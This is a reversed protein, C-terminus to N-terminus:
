NKWKKVMLVSNSGGFAFSNSMATNIKQNRACNPVYDLDCDPDPNHLNMTPPVIDHKVSLVTSILELASSAGLAHGLMSKTSSVPIHNAYDGFVTKIAATESQDNHRTATGHANIYDIDAADVGSDKLALRIAEAGGETSPATLHFADCNSGFGIIEAYIDANRRQASELSELILIGAGEALVFGDRQRDFPRCAGAPDGNQRSLVRLLSWAKVIVPTIPAEVGGCLMVEASGSRILHFATGIANAGASCATNITFNMGKLGLRLAIHNAPANSMIKPITFADMSRTTGRGFEAHYSEEYSSIGAAGTGIFVGTNQHNGNTRGLGADLWANHAAAISMQSCRDLRRSEKKSIFEFPDFELAQGAIKVPLRSVDHDRIPGIGSQGAILRGWFEDRECGLSSIVGIGTVVVRM